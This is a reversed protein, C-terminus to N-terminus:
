RAKVNSILLAIANAAHTPTLPNKFRPLHPIPVIGIDRRKSRLVGGYKWWDDLIEEYLPDGVHRSAFSIDKVLWSAKRTKTVAPSSIQLGLLATQQELWTGIPFAWDAIFSFPLKEWALLAPNLLGLQNLTVVTPDVVTCKGNLVVRDDIKMVGPYGGISTFEYTSRYKGKEHYEFTVQKPLTYEMAAHIDSILPKWGYQLELWLDALSKGVADINGRVGLADLAGRYNKKRLAKLCRNLKSINKTILDITQQREAYALALNLSIGGVNNFFRNYATTSAPSSDPVWPGGEHSYSIWETPIERVTDYHYKYPYTTNIRKEYVLRGYKCWANFQIWQHPNNQLILKGRSDRPSSFSVRKDYHYNPRQLATKETSSSSMIKGDSIRILQYTYIYTPKTGSYYEAM